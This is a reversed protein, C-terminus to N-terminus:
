GLRRGALVSIMADVRGDPGVRVRHDSRCRCHLVVTQIAETMVVALLGGVITYVGTVAAMVLISAYIDVNCLTKLIIGGTLFSFGIHITVASVISLIALWDRCDRCYRRELFEPLTAVRSRIYLPAFFLGLLILTLVAMWEFNGNLLGTDYGSQALSM